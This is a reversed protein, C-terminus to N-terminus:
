ENVNRKAEILADMVTDGYKERLDGTVRKKWFELRRERLIDRDPLLPAVMELIINIIGQATEKPLAGELAEKTNKRKPNEKWEVRLYLDKFSKMEIVRQLKRFLVRVRYCEKGMEYLEDELGEPAKKDTEEGFQADDVIYPEPIEEFGKAQLEGNMLERQQNVM